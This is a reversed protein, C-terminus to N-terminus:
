KAGIDEQLYKYIFKEATKKEAIQLSKGEGTIKNFKRVKLEIEFIPNHDSGKKKLITYVPLGLGNAQTWEQLISKSDRKLNQTNLLEQEWLTIILNKVKEYGSDIYLSGLIAEM